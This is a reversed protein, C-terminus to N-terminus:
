YPLRIIYGQTERDPIYVYGFFSRVKEGAAVLARASVDREVEESTADVAKARDLAVACLAPLKGWSDQIAATAAIMFDRLVERRGAELLKM